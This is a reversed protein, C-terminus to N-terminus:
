KKPGQMSIETKTSSPLLESSDYNLCKIECVWLISSLIVSSNSLDDFVVIDPMARCIKGDTNLTLAHSDQSTQGASDKIARDQYIQMRYYSFYYGYLALLGGTFFSAFSIWNVYYIRKMTYAYWGSINAPSGRQRLPASRRCYTRYLCPASAGPLTSKLWLCVNRQHASRYCSSV